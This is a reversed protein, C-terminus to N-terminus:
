IKNFGLVKTLYSNDWGAKLRKSKISKRLSNENKLLNMAIHRLVAFNEAAHGARKRCEDERFAIDLGWHLANEIGWHNRVGLSFKEANCALSSIYYHTECTVEDHIHREREVMGISKLGKWLARDALWEIDSVVWYRRIEIRGHDGDITEHYSHPVEELSTSKADEFFLKVDEHLNGQNGKLALVYDAGKDVIKEIINKQCGMADITVICGKLELLDILEPIATIENSKEDTKIQGLVLNMESAWASVMHIAKKGARKDHSRRLTKGDIAVVQGTASESASKIWEMFCKQFEKPNLQIFLRRITDHSPIGHPLELFTKLWDHKSHGYEEIQEWADSGCIVSCITLMVIDLLKHRKNRDIRPDKLNAFHHTLTLSSDKTSM